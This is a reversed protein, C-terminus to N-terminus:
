PVPAAMRYAYEPLNDHSVRIIGVAASLDEFPAHLDSKLSNGSV